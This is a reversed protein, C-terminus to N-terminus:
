LRLSNDFFAVRFLRLFNGPRQHGNCSVHLISQLKCVIIGWRYLEEKPKMRKLIVM